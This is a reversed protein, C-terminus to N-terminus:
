EYVIITKEIPFVEECEIEDDEHEYPSEDQSETSGCSYHTLYYKGDHIFVRRHFTSWRSQDTIEDIITIGGDEQLFEKSFLM